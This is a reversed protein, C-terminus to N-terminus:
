LDITSVMLSLGRQKYSEARAHEGMRTLPFSADAYCNGERYRDGITHFAAAAQLHLEVSRQPHVQSLRLALFAKCLAVWTSFPGAEGAALRREAQSLLEEAARNGAEDTAGGQYGQSVMCNYREAFDAPVSPVEAFPSGAARSARQERPARRERQVCMAKHKPWDGAQCARSCYQVAKCRSCLRLAPGAAACVACVNTLGLRTSGEGLNLRHALPLKRLNAAKVRVMQPGHHQQADPSGLAEAAPAAVPAAPAYDQTLAARVKAAAVEGVRDAFDALAEQTYPTVFWLGVFSKVCVRGVRFLINALCMDLLGSIAPPLSGRACLVLSEDAAASLRLAAVRELNPARPSSSREESRRALVNDRYFAKAGAEDHFAWRYDYAHGLVVVQASSAPEESSPYILATFCRPDSEAVGEAFRAIFNEPAYHQVRGRREPRNRMFDDGDAPEPWPMGRLRAPATEQWDRPLGTLPDRLNLEAVTRCSEVRLGPPRFLGARGYDEGELFSTAFAEEPGRLAMPTAPTRQAGTTAATGPDSVDGPVPLLKVEMRVDADGGADMSEVTGERGNLHAARVLGHLAVRDGVRFSQM